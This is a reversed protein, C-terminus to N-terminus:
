YNMLARGVLSEYQIKTVFFLFFFFNLLYFFLSGTGIFNEQGMREDVFFITGFELFYFVENVDWKRIYFKIYLSYLYYLNYLYYILKIGNFYLYM